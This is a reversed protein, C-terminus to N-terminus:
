IYCKVYLLYPMCIWTLQWDKAWDAILLPYTGHCLAQHSHSLITRDLCRMWQLSKSSLRGKSAQPQNIWHVRKQSEIQSRRRNRSSGNRGGSKALQTEMIADSYSSLLVVASLRSFWIVVANSNNQKDISHRYIMLLREEIFHFDFSCHPVVECLDSHGNNFPRCVNTISYLTHLFSGM